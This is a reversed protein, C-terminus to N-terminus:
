AFAVDTGTGAIESQRDHLRDSRNDRAFARAPM